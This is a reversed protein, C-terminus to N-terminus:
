LTGPSYVPGFNVVTPTPVFKRSTVRTDFSNGRVTEVRRDEVRLFSSSVRDIRLAGPYSHFAKVSVRLDEFFFARRSLRDEVSTSFYERRM